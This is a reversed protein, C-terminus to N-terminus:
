RTRRRSCSRSSAASGAPRMARSSPSTPRPRSARPSTAARTARTPRSSSAASSRTRRSSTAPRTARPRSRRSRARRRPPIARRSCRSRARSSSRSRSSARSCRRTADRRARLRRVGRVGQRRADAELRPPVARARPQAQSRHRRGARQGRVPGRDVAQRGCRRPGPELDAAGVRHLDRRPDPEGAREEGGKGGRRLGRGRAERRAPPHVPLGAGRALGRGAWASDIRRGVRGGGRRCFRPVPTVESRSGDGNLLLCSFEITYSWGGLRTGGM